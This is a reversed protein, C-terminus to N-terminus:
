GAPKCARLAKIRELVPPHSYNLFVHFPHPTLNGLNDVTLRKLATVLSEPDGTAEAAYRDAQFEHRRSLWTVAVSLVLSVPTYLLGFFMLGAYVSAREMGFAAFLGPSRIFLSMLLFVAGLRLIGLLLGRVIHGLRSHGIEHALIAVIEERGHQKLLTDFLAIRKKRGLGTFFANSKSSRKSGDMVFIGSLEFAQRRAFEEIARRLEGDEMPTFTNFLPLIIVPAFYQLVVMFASVGLWSWLWASGPFASFLYIVGALVPGGIAATLGYGKLKDAAFLGPTMRNFGFKEELVFIRYLEFPMAMLDGALGLVAFFLLGTPIESWGLSRVLTDVYNFGGALIFAITLPTFVAESVSDLRGGARSYEQSARYKDPDYFGLFEEPLRLDLRGRNLRRATENVAWAGLLSAVIVVLYPNM